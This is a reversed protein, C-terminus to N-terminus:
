ASLPRRADATDNRDSKSKVTEAVPRFEPLGQGEGDYAAAKGALVPAPYSGPQDPFLQKMGQSLAHNLARAEDGSLTMRFGDMVVTLECKETNALVTVREPLIKM